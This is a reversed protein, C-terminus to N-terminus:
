RILKEIKSLLLDMQVPKTIYDACVAEPLRGLDESVTSPYQILVPLSPRVSNLIRAAELGDIDPLEMDMLVMSIDENEQTLRITEKGTRAWLLTTGANRLGSKLLLFSSENDEAVLITKGSLSPFASVGSSGPSQQQSRAKAPVYPLSFYFTSGKGQVSELWIRGGMFEVLGRSIALGLGTGGYKRTTSDDAQRFREFILYFKDEPIGVGTDRVYFSAMGKEAETCGIEIYGEDTFKIANGILNSLIQRLRVPDCLFPSKVPKAPHINLTINKGLKKIEHGYFTELEQFIRRIDCEVYDIKMIGSELKSFDIIDDILASLLNVNSKIIGTYEKRSEEDLEFNGILESFGAIANMPTRIEHSLNALFATKLQDSEEAKEKASRLEEEMMKRETIDEKVAVFHTIEGQRNRVSSISALEWLFEGNKKRNLFEGRWEKGSLITDWLDKYFEESHEGSKLIGPSRGIVEEEQYGSIQCFRPNVYEIIGQPDTIFVSVPSHNVAESLTLIKRQAIIRQLTISAQKILTELIGPRFPKHGKRLLATACGYLEDGWAFGMGAASEVEWHKQLDRAEDDTLRNFFVERLGGAIIELKGSKMINLYEGPVKITLNELSDTQFYRSLPEPDELGAISEFKIEGKEPDYSSVVALCNGLLKRISEATHRYLSEASDLELVELANESLFKLNEQYEREQIGAMKQSTVDMISVAVLDLKDRHGPIPLWQTIAFIQRGRSDNYQTDSEFYSGGEYLNILGEVFMKISDDTVLNFLRSELEAKDGIGFLKLFARNLGVVRIMSRCRAYEGPNQEFFKRLDTVGKQRLDDLYAKPGSFDEYIHAVPSYELLAKLEEERDLLQRQFEKIATIDTLSAIRENTGPLVEVQLFINRMEGNRRLLRFEYETPAEEKRTRKEHYSLMLPLDDKYIFEPWKIKGEVEKKLYGTLNEFNHNCMRIVMDDFFSVIAAGTHEFISRYREESTKLIEEHQKTDTIDQFSCVVYETEGEKNEGPTWKVRFLRQKEPSVGLWLEEENGQRSAFVEGSAKLLRRVGETDGLIDLPRSEMDEKGIGWFKSFAQNVAGLRLGSSIFCVQLDIHDLLLLHEGAKKRFAGEIGARNRKEDRLKLSGTIAPVLRTLNDKLVYDWAGDKLCTAATGEDITGTVMIVPMDPYHEHLWGLNERVDYGPMSYDSLIVDMNGLGLQAKMEKENKVWHLSFDIEEKELQKRILEADLPDDELLLIHLSNNM